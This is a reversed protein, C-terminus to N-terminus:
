TRPQAIPHTDLGLVSEVRGQLQPPILPERDPARYATGDQSTHQRLAVGFAAGIETAPGAIVVTRRGRDAQVVELGRSRAFEEVADSDAPDAGYRDAFEDRSLPAATTLQAADPLPRRPRLIVSVEVRDNPDTAGESM